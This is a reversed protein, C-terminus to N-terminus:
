KTFINFINNWEPLDQSVFMLLSQYLVVPSIGVVQGRCLQGM